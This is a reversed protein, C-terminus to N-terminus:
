IIHMHSDILGLIVRRGKLDIMAPDSGAQARVESESGVAAFRGGRILVADARPNGRDLTTFRGNVLLLDTATM